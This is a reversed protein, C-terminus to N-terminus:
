GGRKNAERGIRAIGSRFAELVEHSGHVGCEAVAVTYAPQGTDLDAQWWVTACPERLAPGDHGPLACLERREGARLTLIRDARVRWGPPIAQQVAERTYPRACVSRREGM